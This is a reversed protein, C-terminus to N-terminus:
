TNGHSAFPLSLLRTQRKRLILSSSLVFTVRSKHWFTNDRPPLVDFLKLLMLKVYNIVALHTSSDLAVIPPLLTTGVTYNELSHDLSNYMFFGKM